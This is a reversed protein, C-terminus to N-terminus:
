REGDGIRSGAVIIGVYERLHKVEGKIVALDTRLKHIEELHVDSKRSLEKLDEEVGQIILKYVGCMSIILALFAGVIKLAKALTKNFTM